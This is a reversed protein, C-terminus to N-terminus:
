EHEEFFGVLKGGITFDPITEAVERLPVDPRTIWPHMPDAMVSYIVLHVYGLAPQIMITGPEVSDHTAVVIAAKEYGGSSVYTGITGPRITM